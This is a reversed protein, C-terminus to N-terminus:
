EHPSVRELFAQKLTYKEQKLRNQKNRQQQTDERSSKQGGAKQFIDQRNVVWKKKYGGQLLSMIASVVSIMPM